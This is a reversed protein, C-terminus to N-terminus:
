KLSGEEPGGPLDRLLIKGKYTADILHNGGEKSLKSFLEELGVGLDQGEYKEPQILLEFLQKERRLKLRFLDAGARRDWAIDQVARFWEYRQYEDLFGALADLSMPFDFVGSPPREGDEKLQPLRWTPGLGLDASAMHGQAEAVNWMRGERSVCWLQDYWRVKLWPTLRKIATAFRGVRPMTTVVSVPIDRELFQKLGEADKLFYPWFRFCRSPFVSWLREELAPDQADVRYGSLPMWARYEVLRWLGGLLLSM